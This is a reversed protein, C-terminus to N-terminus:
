NLGESYASWAAAAADTMTNAQRGRWGGGGSGGGGVGSRGDSGSFSILFTSMKVFFDLFISSGQPMSAYLRLPRRRVCPCLGLPQHFREGSQLQLTSDRMLLGIWDWGCPVMLRCAHLGVTYHLTVTVYQQFDTSYMPMSLMRVNCCITMLGGRSLM